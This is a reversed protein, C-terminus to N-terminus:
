ARARGIHGNGARRHPGQSHAVALRRLLAVVDTTRVPGADPAHDASCEPGLEVRYLTDALEFDIDVVTAMWRSSGDHIEIVEGPELGRSLETETHRVLLSRTRHTFPSLTLELTEM